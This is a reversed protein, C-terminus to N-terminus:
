GSFAELVDYGPKSIAIGFLGNPMRGIVIRVLKSSPDTVLIRQSAGQSSIVPTSYNPSSINISQQGGSLSIYPTGDVPNALVLSGTIRQTGRQNGTSVQRPLTRELNMQPLNTAGVSNPTALTYSSGMPSIADSDSM